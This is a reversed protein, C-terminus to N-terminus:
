GGTLMKQEDSSLGLGEMFEGVDAGKVAIRLYPLIDKRTRKASTHTVSGIKRCLSKLVVRKMKTRGLQIIRQPPKYAVFGHKDRNTFLSIGSLLDVMFGKLRWNQFLIVKNRLIDAKSLLSYAKETGSMELENPLNTEVWWFIEDPDTDSGYIVKRATNINGSHFITPMISYIPSQRERYGLIEMDEQKLETKGQCIIQLDTIASRMDGQSWRALSKIVDGTISIKEQRCIESLGSAVSPAPVRTLKVFKCCSRLPKLKPKWPDNAILIVPCGSNKILRTIATVAGRDGRSLGDIEDLIIIKGKHFLTTNKSDVILSEIDASKRKDSADVKLLMLGTENAVTEVIVNKGTGTPGYLLLAKGAKWSGLWEKVDNIVKKHGRIEGTNKPKYKDTWLMGM